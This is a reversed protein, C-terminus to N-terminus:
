KVPPSSGCERCFNEDEKFVYGCDCTIPNAETIMPPASGCECCFREDEKFVYGCNCTIPKVEEIVPPTNGCNPCFKENPLFKYGCICTTTKSPPSGCSVCFKAGEKFAIGCSCYTVPQINVPQIAQTSQFEPTAIIAQVGQQQTKNREIRRNDVIQFVLGATFMIFWFFGYKETDGFLAAAGVGALYGGTVASTVIIIYKSIFVAVIGLIIGALIVLIIGGEEPNILLYLIGSTLLTVYLFVGFKLLKVAFFPCVIAIGLGIFALPSDLMMGIGFIALGGLITILVVLVKYLRYGFFCYIAGIAASFFAAFVGWENILTILANFEDRM